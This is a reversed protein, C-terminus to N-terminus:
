GQFTTIEIVIIKLNKIFSKVYQFQYFLKMKERVTDELTCLNNLIQMANARMEPNMDQNNNILQHIENLDYFNM